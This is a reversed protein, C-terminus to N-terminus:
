PVHIGLLVRLDLATCTSGKPSSGTAMVLWGGFGGHAATCGL